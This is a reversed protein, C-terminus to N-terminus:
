QWRLEQESGSQAVPLTSYSGNHSYRVTRGSLGTNEYRYSNWGALLGILSLALVSIAIALRSRRYVTGILDAGSQIMAFMGTPLLRFNAKQVLLYILYPGM